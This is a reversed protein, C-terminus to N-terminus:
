GVAKLVNPHVLGAGMVELWKQQGPIQIDVEVSPETFPFYSPRFRIKVEKNFFREFFEEVVYKFNALSVDDGVMLGEFQYFNIEHSADTAEYRFVRGPVIIQFPPKHDRMYRIQMPSTHTRLLLSDFDKLWFTDWMDRAPHDAPINLADFNNYSSEVEPGELVSFNLDQFIKRIQREVQTLPHLHGLQVRTGPQTIDLGVQEKNVAKLEKLKQDFLYNLDQKLQNAAGGVKKREALSKKSLSRLIKTVEGKRGLYKIRLSELYKPDSIDELAQQAEEKLEKLNM